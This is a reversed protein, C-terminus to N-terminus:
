RACVGPIARILNREIEAVKTRRSELQAVPPLSLGPWNIQDTAKALREDVDSPILYSDPQLLYRSEAHPIWRLFLCVSALLAEQGLFLHPSSAICDPLMHLLAKEYAADMFGDATRLQNLRMRGVLALLAHHTRMGALRQVVGTTDPIERAVPTATLTSPWEEAWICRREPGRPLTDLAKLVGDQGLSANCLIQGIPHRLWLDLDSCPFRSQITKAHTPQIIRGDRTGHFTGRLKAPGPKNWDREYIFREIENPEWNKAISALEAYVAASRMATLLKPASMPPIFLFDFGYPDLPAQQTSM